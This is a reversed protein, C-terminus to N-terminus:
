SCSALLRLLAQSSRCRVELLRIDDELSGTGDEGEMEVVKLELLRRLTTLQALRM